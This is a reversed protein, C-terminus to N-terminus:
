TVTMSGAIFFLSQIPAGTRIHV